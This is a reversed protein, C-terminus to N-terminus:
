RFFGGIIIAAILVGGIIAIRIVENRVHTYDRSVHREGRDHAFGRSETRSEVVTEADEEDAEVEAEDVAEASAAEGAPFDYDVSRKQKRRRSAPPRYKRPV